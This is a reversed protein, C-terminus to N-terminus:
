FYHISKPFVIGQIFTIAMILLFVCGITVQKGTAMIHKYYGSLRLQKDGLIYAPIQFARM